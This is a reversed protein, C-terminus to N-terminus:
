ELQSIERISKRKIFKEFEVMMDYTLGHQDAGDLFYMTKNYVVLVRLLRREVMGDFDGTWKEQVDEVLSVNDVEDAGSSQIGILCWAFILSTIFKRM